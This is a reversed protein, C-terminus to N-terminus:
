RECGQEHEPQADDVDLPPEAGSPRWRHPTSDVIHAGAQGDVLLLDVQCGAALQYVSRIREGSTRDQVVAYGRLLVTRPDMATLKHCLGDLRTRQLRLGGQIALWGRRQLDDVRQRFEGLVRLPAERHLRAHLADTRQRREAIYAMALNTLRDIRTFLEDGLEQRNPVAAAAAASPTPARLDACFDAITFDTEHGIGTIVPARSGVIARGVQEDNFAWLDEASGGGRAVIVVDIDERGDLLRIARVIASPAELGQVTTPSLLVEVLPYRSRLVNLIDQFAAGGPSTVVGIRQPWRPISRKRGADFLGEAELRAKLAQFARWRQGVGGQLLTDAYFQYVGGREYVSVHGHAEVADGPQPRWSLRWAQSRWMVCRMEASTGDGSDKLTFYCHGSSAQAFDSIEGEIWLDALAEDSEILKKIHRTVEAISRIPHM